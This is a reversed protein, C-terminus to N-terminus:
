KIKHISTIAAGTNKYFVKGKENVITGNIMVYDIGTSFQLPKAVTARDAITALDFVVIDADAGVQIRGKKKLQPAINELRRCPLITMKSIADMLTITSNEVVYKRIVRSFCGAGRPHNGGTSSMISDSGIMIWRCQIADLVDNEPIAYAIVMKGLKRNEIFTQKTLREATYPLQLDSYSIRFRQQWGADFRASDLYTGWYNYPYMCATIDLGRARASELQEISEKMSFTGGTSNIHDIHCSAKTEKALEIIEALAKQNTDPPINTSYRAHFFCPVSYSSAIVCLEKVEEYSAGPTYELSFSIGLAGEQLGKEALKKMKEIQAKTAKSSRDSVGVFERLFKHSVAAGYNMMMPMQKKEDLWRKYDVVGGHMCLNTTVGDGVKYLSATYYPEYSLIDIFGPVVYRGEANITRIGSVPGTTLQVIVGKSIGLNMVDQLGTEPDIVTGSVIAIDYLMAADPDIVACARAALMAQLVMVSFVLSMHWYKRMKEMTELM